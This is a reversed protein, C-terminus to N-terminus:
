SDIMVGVVRRRGDARRGESMELAKSRVWMGNPEVVRPFCRGPLAERSEGSSSRARTPPFHPEQHHSHQHDAQTEAEVTSDIGAAALM